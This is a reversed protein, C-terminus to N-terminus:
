GAMRLRDPLEPDGAGARLGANLVPAAQVHPRYGMCHQTPLFYENRNMLLAVVMCFRVGRSIPGDHLSTDCKAAGLEIFVIRYKSSSSCSIKKRLRARADSCALKFM